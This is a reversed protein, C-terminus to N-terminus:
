DRRQVPNFKHLNRKEVRYAASALKATTFYGLHYRVGECTITARYLKRQQDFYVGTYGSSNRSSVRFNQNQESPTALRLNSINNNDPDGDRHDVSRDPFENHVWFWALHSATYRRGGVRIRRYGGAGISGARTNLRSSPGSIWVFIGTRPNYHILERLQAATM